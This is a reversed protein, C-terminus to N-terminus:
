SRRGRTRACAARWDFGEHDIQSMPQIGGALDVDFKKNKNMDWSLSALFRAAGQLPADPRLDIDIREHM